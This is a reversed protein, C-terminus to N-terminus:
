NPQGGACERRCIKYLQLKGAADVTQQIDGRQITVTDFKIPVPLSVM